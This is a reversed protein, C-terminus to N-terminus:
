PRRRSSKQAERSSDWAKERIHILDLTRQDIKEWEFRILKTSIRNRMNEQILREKESTSFEDNATLGWWLNDMNLNWSSTYFVLNVKLLTDPIVHLLFKNVFSSYFKIKGWTPINLKFNILLLIPIINKLYLDQDHLHLKSSQMNMNSTISLVFIYLELLYFELVCSKISTQKENGLLM